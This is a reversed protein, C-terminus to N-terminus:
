IIIKHSSCHQSYHDLQCHFLSTSEIIYDPKQETGNENKSQIMCKDEDLNTEEVSVMDVNTAIHYMNYDIFESIIRLKHSIFEFKSTSVICIVNSPCPANWIPTPGCFECGIIAGNEVISKHPGLSM